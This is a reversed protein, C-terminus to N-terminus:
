FRAYIFGQTLSPQTMGLLATFLLAGAIWGWLASPRWHIRTPERAAEAIGFIQMTNPCGLAVITALGLWALSQLGHVGAHPLLRPLVAPGGRGISEALDAIMDTGVAAAARM